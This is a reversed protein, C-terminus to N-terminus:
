DRVLSRSTTESSRNRAAQLRQLQDNRVTVAVVISSSKQSHRGLTAGSKGMSTLAGRRLNHTSYARAAISAEAATM